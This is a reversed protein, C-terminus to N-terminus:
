QIEAERMLLRLAEISEAGAERGGASFEAGGPLRMMEESIVANKRYHTELSLWGDYGDRRLRRLLGRYDVLGDGIKVCEPECGEARVADKIHIHALYPHIAEYGEPFPREKETLDYIDNGPDYIAGIRPHSIERILEALRKHNYTYVSPDSELLLRKHNEELIACPEQFLGAIERYSAERGDARFFAFGRITGCGLIDAAECLRRLKELNESVAARDELNCKYFSAALNCTVLGQDDLRKRYEKLEREKVADIAVGEVSRLEVGQLRHSVAFDLAETFSQTVEDTIISLKM